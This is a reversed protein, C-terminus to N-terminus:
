ENNKLADVPHGLAAKISQFSIMVLVFVIMLGAVIMFLVPSLSIRFAYGELFKQALMYSLPFAILFSFLVPKLFDRCLLIVVQIVSAGLVKRLGIEKTRRQTNFMTLGILGLGAIGVAIVTSWLSFNALMQERFFQNRFDQDLFSYNLEAGPQFKAYVKKVHAVADHVKGEQYRVFLNYMYKTSTMQFIVPDMPAHIDENQFDRVVGIITGEKEGFMTYTIRQGIPDTMGLKRAASETIVFASSDSAILPTFNRGAIFRFKLTELMNHDVSVGNLMIPDSTHNGAWRVESYGNVEMPSAGGLAASVISTHRTIEAKFAALSLDEEEAIWLNIVNHKDFGLDRALLFDTQQRLILAFFILVVSLSFQFVVLVKRLGAGSLSVGANGKLTFVPKLRSLLFAPYSGATLSAFIVVAVVGAWVELDLLSFELHVGTLQNFYPLMVYVCLLSTLAALSTLILSEVLFQRALLRQTAGTIKRVGIERARQAATATAINMYNVCAMVLIFIATIIFIIVYVIRGGSVKGNVFNWHLRWDTLPFLLCHVTQNEMFSHIEADIKREVVSRSNEDYLRVFYNQPEEDANIRASFPLLYMYDHLSSNEPFDRFVASVIYDNKAEVTVTRGLPNEKGFLLEALNQSIVISHKGSLPNPSGSLLTPAFVQFYSTDVYAGYKLVEKNGSKLMSRSNEFRTVSAVEPINSSVKELLPVPTEDSTEINGEVTENLLVAFVRSNGPDYRDYTLEYKAWIFVLIASTLGIMLGFTTVFFYGPNRHIKRFTISLISRLM